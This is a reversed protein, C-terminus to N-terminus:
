EVVGAGVKVANEVAVDFTRVNWIISGVVVCKARLRQLRCCTVLVVLPQPHAVAAPGHVWVQLKAVVAEVVDVQLQGVEKPVGINHGGLGEQHVQARGYGPHYPICTHVHRQCDATEVIGVTRFANLWTSQGVQPLGEM